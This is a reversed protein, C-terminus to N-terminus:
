EVVEVEVEEEAPTDQPMCTNVLLLIRRRRLFHIPGIEVEEEWLKDPTM